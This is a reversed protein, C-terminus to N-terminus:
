TGELRLVRTVFLNLAEEIHKVMVRKVREPERKRLAKLIVAHSEAISKMDAHMLSTATLYVRIKRDTNRWMEELLDHRALHVIYKHFQYDCEVVRPFDGLKAAALMEQIILGLREFDSDTLRGIAQSVAFGELLGRLSAVERVMKETLEAVFTGRNAERVVLGDRELQMLGERVPVRSTGMARAIEVERLHTGPPLKGKAISDRIAAAIQDAMRRYRIPDVSLSQPRKAHSHQDSGRILRPTARLLGKRNRTGESQIMTYM